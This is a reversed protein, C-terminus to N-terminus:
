AATEMILCTTSATAILKGAADTVRAEAVASRRGAHVITGTATITGTSPTVGRLYNVKIELTTYIRGAPLTSHVSCGMVSDLLTALIGGHMVGMPNAHHPGPTLSMTVSGIEASVMRMGLLTLAGPPPVSGDLFGRMVAIGPLTTIDLTESM